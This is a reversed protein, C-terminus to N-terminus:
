SVLRVSERRTTRTFRSKRRLFREEDKDKIGLLISNGAIYGAARVTVDLQGFPGECRSVAFM